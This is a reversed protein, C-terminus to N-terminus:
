LAYSIGVQTYTDTKLEGQQGPIQSSGQSATYTLKLSFKQNLRIGVGAGGQPGPYSLEMHERTGDAEQMDTSYHKVTIGAFVFPTVIEGGYLIMTLDVANATVHSLSRFYVYQKSAEKLQYGTTSSLEQRHTYGIRFYEGLDLSVGASGAGSEIKQYGANAQSHSGGLTIQVGGMASQTYMLLALSTASAAIFNKLTMM